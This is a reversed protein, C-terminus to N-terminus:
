PICPLGTEFHPQNTYAAIYAAAGLRDKCMYVQRRGRRDEEIARVELTKGTAPTGVPGWAELQAWTLPLEPTKEKRGKTSKCGEARQRNSAAQM